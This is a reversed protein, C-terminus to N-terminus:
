AFNADTLDAVNVGTIQVLLDNAADYTAGAAADYLAYTQGQFTFATWEGAIVGDQVVAAAAIDAAAQLTAAPGALQNIAAQAASSLATYDSDGAVILADLVDGNAGATFGNIVDLFMSGAAATPTTNLSGSDLASSFEVTAQGANLTIVDAGTAAGAVQTNVSAASADSGEIVLRGTLASADVTARNALGAIDLNGDGDINITSGARTNIIGVNNFNAAVGAADALDGSSTLNITAVTTPAETGSLAVTLTGVNADNGDNQALTGTAGLLDINLTTSGGNMNFTAAGTNSTGIEYTRASGANNITDAGVTNLQINTIGANNFTAGNLTVGTSGDFQVREVSTLANYRAAAGAASLDGPAGTLDVRITDFGDGGNVTDAATFGQGFDFDDAGAGGTVAVNGAAGGGTGDEFAVTVGGTNASANFTTVTGQLLAPAGFTPDDTLNESNGTLNVSGAGAVTVTSLQVSAGLFVNNTGTATLAITEINNTGITTVGMATLDSSANSLAVNQVDTTGGAVNANYNVNIAGGTTNNVELDVVTDSGQVFFNSNGSQLAVTEVGDTNILDLAGGAFANVEVREVGTMTPVINVAGSSVIRLTDDGDGGTIVDGSQLTDTIGVATTTGIILDNGDTGQVVDISTTLAFTQGPNNGPGTGSFFDDAEDKGADVTAQDDTVDTVVDVAAQAAAANYEFNPEEAAQIAWYLGVESKNAITEADNFGPGNNQAGYIIDMIILGPDRGGALISSWYDIGEQDAPRNFLNMYITNIFSAPSVLNPNDLYAYKDTAEPQVAFYRAMDTLTVGKKAEGVWYNLGDPDPARDFYAVYLQTIELATANAM